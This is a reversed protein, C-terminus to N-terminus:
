PLEAARLEDEGEQWIRRFAVLPFGAIAVALMAPLAPAVWWPWDARAGPGAAQFLAASKGFLVARSNGIESGRKLGGWVVPSNEGRTLSVIYLTGSRDKMRALLGGAANEDDPHAGIWLVRKANQAVEMVTVPPAFGPSVSASSNHCGGMVFAAIFNLFVAPIHRNPIM